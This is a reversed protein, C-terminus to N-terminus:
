AQLLFALVSLLAGALGHKRYGLFFAANPAFPGLIAEVDDPLAELATDM